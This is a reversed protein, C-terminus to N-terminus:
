HSRWGTRTVGTGVGGRRLPTRGVVGEVLGPGLGDPHGGSPPRYSSVRRVPTGSVIPYPRLPHHAPVVLRSLFRFFPIM